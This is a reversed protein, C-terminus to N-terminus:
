LRRLEGKAQPASDEMQWEVFFGDGEVIFRPGYVM